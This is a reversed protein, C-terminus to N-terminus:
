AVGKQQRAADAFAADFSAGRGKVLFMGGRRIGVQFVRPSGEDSFSMVHSHDGWLLRARDEADQFELIPGYRHLARQLAEDFTRGIGVVVGHLASVVCDGDGDVFAEAELGSALARDVAQARTMPM